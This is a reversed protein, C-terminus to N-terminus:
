TCKPENSAWWTEAEPLKNLAQEACFEFNGGDFRFWSDTGGGNMPQIRHRQEPHVDWASVKNGPIHKGWHTTVGDRPARAIEIVFGGGNRDFQFTLLDIGSEASRRFHPFSGRFGASRLQPIVNETLVKDMSTRLSDM